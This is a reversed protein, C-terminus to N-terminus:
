FRKDFALLKAGGTVSIQKFHQAACLAHLGDGFGPSDVQRFVKWNSKEHNMESWETNRCSDTFQPNSGDTTLGWM